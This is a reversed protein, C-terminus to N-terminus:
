NENYLMWITDIKSVKMIDIKKQQQKLFNIYLLSNLLPTVLSFEALM